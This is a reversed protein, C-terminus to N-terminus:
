KLRSALRQKTYLTVPFGSNSHFVIFGNKKKKRKKEQSYWVMNQWRLYQEVALDLPYISSTPIRVNKFSPPQPVNILVHWRSNCIIDHIFEVIKGTAAQKAFYFATFVTFL